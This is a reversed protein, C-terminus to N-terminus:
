GWCDWSLTLCHIYVRNHNQNSFPVQEMEPGPCVPAASCDPRVFVLVYCLMIKNTQSAGVQESSNPSNPDHPNVDEIGGNGDWHSPKNAFICFCGPFYHVFARRGQKIEWTIQM